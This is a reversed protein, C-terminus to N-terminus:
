YIIIKTKIKIKKGVTREGELIVEKFGDKVCRGLSM